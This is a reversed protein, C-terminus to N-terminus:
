TPDAGHRWGQARVTSTRHAHRDKEGKTTLGITPISMGNVTPHAAILRPSAPHQAEIREPCEQGLAVVRRDTVQGLLEPYPCAGQV